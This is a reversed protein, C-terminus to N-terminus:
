SGDAEDGHGHGPDDHHIIETHGDRQIITVNQDSYAVATRSDSNLNAAAAITTPGNKMAETVAGHILDRLTGALGECEDATTM